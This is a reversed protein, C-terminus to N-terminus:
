PVLVLVWPGMCPSECPEFANFPGVKVASQTKHPWPLSCTAKNTSSGSVMGGLRSSNGDEQRVSGATPSRLGRLLIPFGRSKLPTANLDEVLSAVQDKGDGCLRM